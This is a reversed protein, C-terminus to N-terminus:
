IKYMKQRQVMVALRLFVIVSLSRMKYEQGSVRLLGKTSGICKGKGLGNM